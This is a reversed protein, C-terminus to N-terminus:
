LVPIASPARGRLLCHLFSLGGVQRRHSLSRGLSEAGDHSIGNVMIAKIEVADLHVVHSASSGPWLPSCYEMFHNKVM